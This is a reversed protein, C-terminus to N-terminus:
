SSFQGCVYSLRAPMSFGAMHTVVHKVCRSGMGRGRVLLHGQLMVAKSSDAGFTQTTVCFWM